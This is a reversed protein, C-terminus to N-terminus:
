DPYLEDVFEPEQGAPFREYGAPPEEGDPACAMGDAARDVTRVPYEDSGCVRERLSCGSSGLGAVVALVSLATLLNRPM